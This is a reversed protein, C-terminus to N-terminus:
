NLDNVAGPVYKDFSRKVEIDLRDKPKLYKAAIGNPYQRLLAIIGDITEGRAALHWVVAQFKDSQEGKVTGRELLEQYDEAKLKENDTGTSENESQKKDYQAIVDDILADINPLKSCSGLEAGSITIYRECKRYTEIASEGEGINAFKRNVKAGKGTGIIRLGTGSVTVEVYAGLACAAKVFGQAWATLEGTDRNRCKDLDLAAVEGDLLMFGIGDINNDKTNCAAVATAYDSWTSSTNNKALRKPNAARYPPKTWKDAKLEWKWVVWRKLKALPALAVPLPDLTGCHTQPQHLRVVNDSSTKAM